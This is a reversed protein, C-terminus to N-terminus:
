STASVATFRMSTIAFCSYAISAVCFFLVIYANRFVSCCSCQTIHLTGHTHLPVAFPVSRIYVCSLDIYINCRFLEQADDKWSEGTFRSYAFLLTGDQLEAFSGDSNRPNGPASNLRLMVESKMEQIEPEKTEM